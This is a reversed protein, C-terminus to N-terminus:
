IVQAPLSFKIIAGKVNQMNDFHNEAWIEGQHAQVIEKCITLGLGTGSSTSHDKSQQFKDFITELKESAIGSGFDKIEVILKNKKAALNSAQDSSNLLEPNHPSVSIEIIQGDLSAKIANSLINLLVQALRDQDFYAMYDVDNVVIRLKKANALSNLQAVSDLIVKSINQYKFDFKMMGSELKAADLVNNLLGMLRDGSMHIHHFYRHLQQKSLQDLRTEGMQAYTLIGHLPTRIEHSMKALFDSKVQNAQNAQERASLMKKELLKRKTIDRFAVQIVSKGMINMATFVCDCWFAQGDNRQALWEQQHSGKKICLEIARVGQRFSSVGSPQYKPFLRKHASKILQEKTTFGFMNLTAQNCDIIHRGQLIFLGDSAKEFLTQFSKKQEELESSVQYVSTELNLKSDLLELKLMRESLDRVFGVVVEENDLQMKSAHVEVPIVKGEGTAYASEFLKKADKTFYECINMLDDNSYFKDFDQLYLKLLQQREYQLLNCAEDNVDLVKGQCNWLFFAESSQDIIQAYQHQKHKITLRADRNLFILRSLFWVILSVFFILAVLRNSPATSFFKENSYEPFKKLDATVDLLWTKGAFNVFFGRQKYFDRASYIPNQKLISNQKEDAETRLGFVLPVYALDSSKLANLIRNLDIHLSVYGLLRNKQSFVAKYVAVIKENEDALIDVVPESAIFEKTFDAIYLSSKQSDIELLNIGLLHKNSEPYIFTLFAKEHNKSKISETHREVWAISKSQSGNAMLVMAFSEFEKASLDSQMQLVESLSRLRELERYLLKQFKTNAQESLNDFSTNLKILHQEKQYEIWNAVAFLSAIFFLGAIFIPFLFTKNLRLLFKM